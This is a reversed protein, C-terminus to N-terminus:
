MDENPYEKRKREKKREQQQKNFTGLKRVRLFHDGSLSDPSFTEWTGNEPFPDVTLEIDRTRNRSKQRSYRSSM